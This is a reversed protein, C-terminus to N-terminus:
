PNLFQYFFALIVTASGLLVVSIASVAIGVTLRRRSFENDLSTALRSINWFLAFMATATLIGTVFAAFSRYKLFLDQADLTDGDEMEGPDLVLNGEEGSVTIGDLFSTIDSAFVPTVTAFVLIVALFLSFIRKM